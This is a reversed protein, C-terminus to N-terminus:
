PVSSARPSAGTSPTNGSASPLRAPSTPPTTVRYLRHTADAAIPVSVTGATPNASIEALPSWAGTALDEISEVTYTRQAVTRSHGANDTATLHFEVLTGNSQAPLIAAFLGDAALGDDHLGDDRLPTTTFPASPQTRWHLFAVVSAQAEDLIRASVTVPQSSSPQAPWHRPSLILPAVDNTATSNPLGPTGGPEHSSAWNQGHTAPLAANVLELTHGAGDHLSFWEWGVKGYRDPAALRRAAWDGETAYDLTVTESGSPSQLELTEGSDSLTGTWGGLVNTVTPHLTLFTTPDSAIVLHANPALVTNTPIELSVGRTVRWHSLDLPTSGPNHLEFWEALVNTGPPHYQIETIRPVAAVASASVLLAAALAPWRVPSPKVPPMKHPFPALCPPPHRHGSPIASLHCAPHPRALIKGPFAELPAAFTV